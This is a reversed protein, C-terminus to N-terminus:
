AAMIAYGAIRSCKRTRRQGAIGRGLVETILTVAAVVDARAIYLRLFNEGHAHCCGRGDGFDCRTRERGYAYEFLKSDIVAAAAFSQECIYAPVFTVGELKHLM